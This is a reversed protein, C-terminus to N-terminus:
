MFIFRKNLDNTISIHMNQLTTNGTQVFRCICLTPNWFIFKALNKIAIKISKIFLFVDRFHM